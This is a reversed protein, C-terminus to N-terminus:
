ETSYIKQIEEQSLARNYIRVEDISGGFYEVRESAGILLNVNNAVIHGAVDEKKIVEGNYYLTVRTGDFTMSVFGWTNLPYTSEHRTIVVGTRSDLQLESNIYDAAGSLIYGGVPPGWTNIKRVLRGLSNTTIYRWACITIENTIDLEPSDSVEIYNNIGNFSYASNAKGARDNALTAGHVTGNNGNGSEDNANGNFPYYAVLGDTLTIEETKFSLENGYATGASNAAYARVYYVTGPTLGTMSSTFEGIGSGDITKDDTIAPSNDESWCIGRSAVPAGGDDSIIGGSRGSTQTIETINLTTLIPVTTKEKTCSYCLLGSLLLITFVEPDPAKIKM